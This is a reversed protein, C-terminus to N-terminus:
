IKYFEGNLFADVKPKSDIVLVHHGIRELRRHERKQHPEPKKGKQKLEVLYPGRWPLLTIEDAKGRRGAPALKYNRGGLKKVGRLFYQRLTEERM